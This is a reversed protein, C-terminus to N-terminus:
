PGGFLFKRINSYKKVLYYLALEELGGGRRDSCSCLSGGILAAEYYNVVGDFPIAESLGSGRFLAVEHYDEEM